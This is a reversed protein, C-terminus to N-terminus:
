CGVGDMGTELVKHPFKSTGLTGTMAMLSEAAVVEGKKPARLGGARGKGLRLKDTYTFQQALEHRKTTTAAFQTEARELASHNSCECRLDLQYIKAGTNATFTLKCAVSQGPQVLGSAPESHLVIDHEGFRWDFRMTDESHTNTVFVVTRSLSFLPVDGVVWRSCSLRGIAQPLAAKPILPPDVYLVHDTYLDDDDEALSDVSSTAAIENTAHRPDVGELVLEIAHPAQGAVTLQVTVRYTHAQLPQLQWPVLVSGQAPVVGVPLGCEMIAFNHNRARLLEVEALELAFPVDVDSPNRLILHQVPPTLQGLLVPEFVHQDFPLDLVGNGGPITTGQLMLVLDTQCRDTHLLLPVHHTDVVQHSYRLELQVTGHAAITGAKPTVKFLAKDLVFQETAEQPSPEQLQAWAEPTWRLDNPLAVHWNCDCDAQNTFELVVVSDSALCPQTGLSIDFCTQTPLQNPLTNLAANLQAVALREWLESSSLQSSAIDSVCLKPRIGQYTAELLKCSATLDGEADVVQAFLSVHERGERQPLVTLALRLTGRPGLVVASPEFRVAEGGTHSLTAHQTAETPNVLTYYTTWAGGVALKGLSQPLSADVHALAIAAAQVNCLLQVNTLKDDAFMDDHAPRYRLMLSNSKAGAAEPLFDIAVM